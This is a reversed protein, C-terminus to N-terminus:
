YGFNGAHKVTPAAEEGSWAFFSAAEQRRGIRKLIVAGVLSLGTQL